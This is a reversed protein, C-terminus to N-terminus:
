NNFIDILKPYEYKLGVAVTWFLQVFGGVGLGEQHLTILGQCRM